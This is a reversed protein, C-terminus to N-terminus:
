QIRNLHSRCDKSAYNEFGKSTFEGCDDTRLIKFKTSFQNEVLTKWEQIKKIVQDNTHLMYIWVYHTAEDIFTQFYNGGGISSPSIKWM